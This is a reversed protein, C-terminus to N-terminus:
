LRRNVRNAGMALVLCGVLCASLGLLFSGSTLTDSHWAKAGALVVMAVILVLGAGLLTRQRRRLGSVLFVAAVAADALMTLVTWTTM